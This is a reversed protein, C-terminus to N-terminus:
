FRKLIIRGDVGMDELHKKKGWTKRGFGQVCREEEGYMSCAEGMENKEVQEGSHYKTLFVPM